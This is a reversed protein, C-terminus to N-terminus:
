PRPLRGCIGSAMSSAPGNNAPDLVTVRYGMSQAAMIFMRGLQGGGLLGLM